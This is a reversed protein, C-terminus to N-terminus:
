TWLFPPLCVVMLEKMVIWRSSDRVGGSEVARVRIGAWSDAVSAKCDTRLLYDVRLLFVDFNHPLDM